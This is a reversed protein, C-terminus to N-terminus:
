LIPPIVFFSPFRKTSLFWQPRTLIPKIFWCSILACRIPPGYYGDPLSPTTYSYNLPCGSGQLNSNTDENAYVYWDNAGGGIPCRRLEVWIKINTVTNTAGKTEFYLKIQKTGTRDFGYKPTTIYMSRSLDEQYGPGEEQVAGATMGLPLLLLMCCLLISLWRKVSKGHTKM